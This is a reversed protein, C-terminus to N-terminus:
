SPEVDYFRSAFDPTIIGDAIDSKVRGPDRDEPRGWGAGGGLFISVVDGKQLTQITAAPQPLIENGRQISLRGLAADRGGGAGKPPLEFHDSYTTLLVGSEVVEYERVYGLGGQFAGAGGSDPLMAFRRIRLYTEVQELSEVPTIRCSSLIHDLAHAGDYNKGAGFGGSLVDCYMRSTGDGRPQSFYLATTTNFGQAPVADPAAQALAAHVADLTRLAAVMRARVPAGKRPNIVSGEPFVLTIPRNCGDNAPIDNDALISRVATLTASTASAIPANFMGRVQPTTGTFDVTLADGQITVTAVVCVPETGLIDHDFWAKGTWCGDPLAAIAARTRRESYDLSAAMAAAVMEPGERRAMDQVREIGIHNAAFQANIDGLGIEATRINAFILREVAGGHWDRSVEFLIPPIILGEQVLEVAAPNIGATGGGIDLHHATNGTWGLLKADLFIPQFLIIDNLHQGGSYPDNLLIASDPTVKSLDLQAMCAAFSRSMAATQMPIVDGQAIVQGKIDLIAASCDRAERVVTSFASRILNLGMEEAAAKLGRALIALRTPDIESM